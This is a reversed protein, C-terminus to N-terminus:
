IGKKAKRSKLSKVQKWFSSGCIAKKCVAKVYRRTKSSPTKISLGGKKGVVIPFQKKTRTNHYRLGKKGNVVKTKCVINSHKVM